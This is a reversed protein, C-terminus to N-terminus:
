EVIRERWDAPPVMCTEMRGFLRYRNRAIQDYLADGLRGPWLTAVALAPWPRRLRPLIRRVTELKAFARGNEILLNTEFDAPDLGYHHFLAQGAPSQAATLRFHAAPDRAIVFRAFGTCLVCVGDFIIIPKDDPLHVLHPDSRYSYPAFRDLRRQLREGAM